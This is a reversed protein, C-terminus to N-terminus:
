DIIRENELWRRFDSHAANSESKIITGNILRIRMEDPNIKVSSIAKKNIILDRDILYFDDPPLYACSATTTEPWVSIENEFNSALYRQNERFIYAVEEYNGEAGPEFLPSSGLKSDVRPLLEFSSNFVFKLHFVILTFVIKLLYIAFISLRLLDIHVLYFYFTVLLLAPLTPLLVGWIFQLGFRKTFHTKWPHSLDLLVSVQDTVLLSLYITFFNTLLNMGRSWVMNDISNFTAQGGTIYILYSAVIAIGIRFYYFSPRITSASDSLKSTM